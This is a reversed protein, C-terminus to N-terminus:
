IKSKGLKLYKKKQSETRFLYGYRLLFMSALINKRISAAKIVRRFISFYSNYENKLYQCYNSLEDPTFHKPIFAAQNFRYDPHLWWENNFLLRGQIKLENYLPTQPYPMLINFAAFAFKHYNAFDLTEKITQPTDADSGIVMAAWIQIGNHTLKKIQSQYRDFNKLNVQKNYQFLGEPVVSEFGIVHGLCGSKNMLELLEDDQAMDISAQGMWKINLPILAKFLEKAAKPNAVINDDVFFLLKRGDHQIEAIVDHVNRTIHTHKFCASIACFSCSYPCGRGFQLLMIPLYPHKKYLSRRPFRSIIQNSIVGNYFEKLNDALLDEMVQQWITEADGIMVSDAYKKAEDPMLSAHMGGLIVKVNRKRYEDAVEYGRRATFIEISICVLDTNADYPIEDFRDDYLVVEFSEPILAAIAALPLPEMSANDSFRQERNNKLLIGINPWILTIHKM